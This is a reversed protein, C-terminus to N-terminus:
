DDLPNEVKASTHSSHTGSSRHGTTSSYHGAMTREPGYDRGVRNLVESEADLLDQLSLAPRGNEENVQEGAENEGNSM